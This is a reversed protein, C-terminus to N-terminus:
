FDNNPKKKNLYEAFEKIQEKAYKAASPQSNNYLSDDFPNLKNIGNGLRYMIIRFKQDKVYIRCGYRFIGSTMYPTTMVEKGPTPISLFHFTKQAKFNIEGLMLNEYLIETNLSDYKNSLFALANSFLQEKSFKSNVVTDLMYQIQGKENVMDPDKKFSQAFSGTTILCIILILLRKKM